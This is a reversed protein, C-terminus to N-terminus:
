KRAIEYHLTMFVSGRLYFRHETKLEGHDVFV